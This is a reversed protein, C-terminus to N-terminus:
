SREEENSIQADIEANVSPDIQEPAADGVKKRKMRAIARDFYATEPMGLKRTLWVYASLGPFALILLMGLAAFKNQSTMAGLPSLLVAGTVIAFAGSALVSKGVTVLIGRMDLGEIRKRLAFVMVLVLAIASLSSALPLSLYSLPTTGLSLALIVFLVTTLSGLVIPTVTNQVAFFGRMLVPHLCWAAIGLSFYRLCSAVVLTNDHTFKGHEFIAAVIQPAALAIFVSVPITIYLVTRITTAVQNRFMDMRQQAFFQTLAPFVAIALSQGFIGLPAQMLLNANYINTNIGEQKHLTAFAQMILGQVGPLSLGLIVPLMLRFVKQVGPHKWDLSPTFRGGIKRMVIYPIVLNGVTAGALAGWAMGMVPVAMFTSIILAGFIIGVNYINPGLGPVTFVQRAYLTGFMLGGILFAYQAPLLIRSMTAILPLDELPKGPAIFHALPLAFTWAGVIFIVVIISMVTAVVSFIHWAERERETHLYESFVPIFASSLAGGAILYFMLDPIQFALRYADTTSDVGFMGAMVMDRVLGLARSLLLSAMM